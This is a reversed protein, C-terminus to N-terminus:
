KTRRIKEKIQIYETRGCCPCIDNIIGNYGCLPDRDVPHNISGYGIGAEKMRRVIREFAALNKTPDGDLEVYSIHGANTLAHYPAEIDIKQMAPLNYYVPVHFSNTYYERDTVGKIVGYKAKDARLLRGALSEAPTALCTVNMGLEQSKRDCYDRIYSVIKLGLKQANQSEGHHEGILAVLCEALGCFGISLTGHKLVERVEDDPSLKDSDMWVGEGMLFPFNRAIRSAQIEYRDLLQMMTKDLMKHLLDFFIMIEGKSEIALRPLNISTFSLNGRGPAVERTKDYINGMVRTRCGMYAVETEPHGPKYYQLNFPADIFAFNPFLRKASVRMALKFMDYNPDEPNYNVGEKVRFIQIPFIPTEGHGLGAETALLLQEIALRGEWSIDTGYNISSFPVQAGARSHMTNLNHIFGEMAQYTDRTTKEMAYDLIWKENRQVDQGCLDEYIKRAEKLYKMYTHKVGEAMAYDFDVVSQGGHQDNQNSQIAIAALAAYSGINKPARLHGHGTNFGDKFLKRLEIQTCTTTWAYFDLDHIHLWGSRHLEAIDPKVLYELNYEKASNAGYQLMAGMSSDGNINANDRKLDSDKSQLITISDFIDKVKEGFSSQM